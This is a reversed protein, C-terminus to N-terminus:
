RAAEPEGATQGSRWLYSAATADDARRREAAEQERAHVARQSAELREMAQRSRSAEILSQRGREVRERQEAAEAGARSSWRELTQVDAAMQGLEMGRAGREASAAIALTRAAMEDCIRALRRSLAELRLNARALDLRAADELRKRHRLVSALRFHFVM